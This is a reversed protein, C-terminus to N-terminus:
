GPQELPSRCRGEGAIRLRVNPVTNRLLVMAQLLFEVGKEKELRGVFLVNPTPPLDGIQARDAWNVPFPLITINKPSVGSSVALESTFQGMPLVVDAGRLVFREVCEVIRFRLLSKNIYLSKSATHGQVRVILRIRNQFVIKALAAGLGADPTPAIVILSKHRVLRVADLLHTLWSLIANLPGFSQSKFGAHSFFRGRQRWGTWGKGLGSFVVHHRETLLWPYDRRLKGCTTKWDSEDPIDGSYFLNTILFQSMEM